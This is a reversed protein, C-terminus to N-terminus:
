QTRSKEEERKQKPLNIKILGEYFKSLAVHYGSVMVFFAGFSVYWGTGM